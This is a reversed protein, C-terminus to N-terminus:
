RKPSPILLERLFGCSWAMIGLFLVFPAQVAVWFSRSQLFVWVALLLVTASIFGLPLVFLTPNIFGILTVTGLSLPLAMGCVVHAPHLWSVDRKGVQLRGIAYQYM